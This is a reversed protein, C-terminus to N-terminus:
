FFFKGLPSVWLFIYVLDYKEANKIDRIRKLYGKITGLIKKIYNNKIYLVRWTDLDFFSSITVEYGNKEWHSIYQEYKLRQGAAWGRPYPCIILVRKKIM